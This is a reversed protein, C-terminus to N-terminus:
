PVFFFVPFLFLPFLYLGGLFGPLLCSFLCVCLCCCVFRFYMLRTFFLHDRVQVDVVQFRFPFLFGFHCFALVVLEPLQSGRSAWALTWKGWSEPVQGPSNHPLINFELLWRAILSGTAASCTGQYSHAAMVFPYCSNQCRPHHRARANSERSLM